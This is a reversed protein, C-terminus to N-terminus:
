LFIQILFIIQDLSDRIFYPILPTGLWNQEKIAQFSTLNLYKFILLFSISFFFTLIFRWVIKTNEYGLINISNASIFNYVLRHDLKDIIYNKNDFNEIANKFYMEEDENISRFPSNYLLLITFILLFLILSSKKLDM